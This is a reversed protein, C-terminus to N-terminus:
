SREDHHAVPRGPRCHRRRHGPNCSSDGPDDSGRGPRRATLGALVGRSRRRVYSAPGLPRGDTRRPGSPWRLHHCLGHDGVSRPPTPTCSADIAALAVNVISFDLVVMFAVALILGLALGPRRSGRFPNSREATRRSAWHCRRRDLASPPQRDARCPKM